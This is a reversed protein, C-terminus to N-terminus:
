QPALVILTTVATGAFIGAGIVGMELRWRGLLRRPPPTWAYWTRPAVAALLVFLSGVVFSILVFYHLPTV